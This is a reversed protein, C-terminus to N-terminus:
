FTEHIWRLTEHMDTKVPSGPGTFHNNMYAFVLMKGSGTKLYGCVNQVGGMSGSKGFLYTTGAQTGFNQLTGNMGGQAMLGFIQEKPFEALMKRLIWVVSEPSILNYRSLGSGDVWKPKQPIDKMAHELMYDRAIKFGLTDGLTSSALLMLQEALFNDSVTMMQRCISDRSMGPLTQISIGEPWNGMYINKGLAAAWLQRELEPNTKIPVDLTDSVDPIHYFTNGNFDRAFPGERLDLSDAFSLPNILLTDELHQFRVINGYIPLSSRDPSYYQDFDEWSWGPGWTPENFPREVATITSFQNLFKLTTSDKLDPHLAAPYGTGSIFVSDARIAYQLAPVKEPLLKLATYLTFVKTVSAPTYAKSGHLNFVIDGTESDVIYLGAYHNLASKPGIKKDLERKTKQYSGCSSFFLLFTITLV